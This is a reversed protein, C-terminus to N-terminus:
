WAGARIALEAALYWRTFAPHKRNRASLEAGMAAYWAVNAPTPDRDDIGAEPRRLGVGLWLHVDEATCADLLAAIPDVCAPTHWQWTM